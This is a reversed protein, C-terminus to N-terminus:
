GRRIKNAHIEMLKYRYEDDTIVRGLTDMDGEELLPKLFENYSKIINRELLEMENLEDTVDGM